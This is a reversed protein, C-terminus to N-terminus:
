GGNKESYQWSGKLVEEIMAIIELKKQGVYENELRKREGIAGTAQGVKKGALSALAACIIIVGAQIGLPVGWIGSLVCAVVGIVAVLAIDSGVIGCPIFLIVAAVYIAWEPIGKGEMKEPLLYLWAGLPIMLATKAMISIFFGALGGLIAGVAQCGKERNM